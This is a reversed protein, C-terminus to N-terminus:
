DNNDPTNRFHQGALQFRETNTGATTVRGQDILAELAPQLHHKPHVIREILDDLRLAQDTERLTEHIAQMEATMTEDGVGQDSLEDHDTKDRDETLTELEAELNQLQTQLADLHRTVQEAIFTDDTGTLTSRHDEIAARLCLSVNGQYHQGALDTLVADLEETITFKRRVFTVDDDTSPM